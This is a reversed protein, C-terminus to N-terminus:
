VRVGIILIDDTQEAKDETWKLLTSELINNQKDMPESHIEGLLNKFRKSMFKKGNAGFQDQYGDSYLYFTTETSIDIEHEEFVKQFAPDFGGICARSGRILTANGNQFYLLPNMAGAYYMKRTEHNIVVLSMDMGDTNLNEDQHLANVVEHHLKELIKSPSTINDTQVIKNMLTSGM